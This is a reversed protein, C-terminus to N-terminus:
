ATVDLSLDPAPDHPATEQASVATGALPCPRPLRSPSVAAGLPFPPGACLAPPCRHAPGAASSTPDIGAGCCGCRVDPWARRFTLNEGGRPQGPAPLSTGVGPPQGLVGSSVHLVAAPGAPLHPWAAPGTFLNRGPGASVMLWRPRPTVGPPAPSPRVSLPSGGGQLRVHCMIDDHEFCPTGPAKGHGVEV